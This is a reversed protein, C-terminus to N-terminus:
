KLVPVISHAMPTGLGLERARELIMEAAAIDQLGSGVSKFLRIGAPLTVEGSVLANLSHTRPAMDLGAAAAALLDGTEHLVEEPMDAIMVTSRHLTTLDVEIQEPLTSGISVVTADDALWDGDLIPTEDRSRAACIVVDSGTVAAQASDVATIDLGHSRAFTAALAERKAATPSFVQVSALERVAALASLQGQAEFGSGLLGVRLPRAPALLAVALASTAATRLGTIQNGDLLAELAMTEGDFLAILYSATRNRMSASILKTGLRGTPSVAPLARLWKGDGRAMARPPVMGDTLPAAYAQRMAAVADPWSRARTVDADTLFLTPPVSVSRDSM